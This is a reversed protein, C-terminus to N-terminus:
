KLKEQVVRAWPSDVLFELDSTEAEQLAKWTEQGQTIQGNNIQYLGLLYVAEQNMHRHPARALSQLDALSDNRVEADASDLGMKIQKLLFLNYLPTDFPIISLAKEVDKRVLDIDDGKELRIQAKYMLFYPALYSGRNQASVADLLIEVDQWRENIQEQDSLDKVMSQVEQFAKTVERFGIFAATERKQIYFQHAFYGGTFLLGFGVFLGVTYVTKAGYKNKLGLFQNQIQSYVVM